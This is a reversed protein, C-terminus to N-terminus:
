IVYKQEGNVNMGRKYKTRARYRSSGLKKTRKESTVTKQKEKKTTRVKHFQNRM